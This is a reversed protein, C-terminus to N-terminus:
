WYRFNKELNQKDTDYQSIYVLTTADPIKNELSKNETHQIHKKQNDVADILKKLEVHVTKLKGVDLDDEKAKLNNM